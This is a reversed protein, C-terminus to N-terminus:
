LTTKFNFDTVTADAPAEWPNAVYLTLGSVESKGGHDFSKEQSQGNLSMICVFRTSEMRMIYHATTGLSPATPCTFMDNGFFGILQGNVISINPARNSPACCPRGDTFHAVSTWVGAPKSSHQTITFSVEYTAGMTIGTAVVNNHVLRGNPDKIYDTFTARDVM